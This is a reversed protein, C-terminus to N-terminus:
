LRRKEIKRYLVYRSIGLYEAAQSINVYIRRM